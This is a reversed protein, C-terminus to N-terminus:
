GNKHQAKTFIGTLQYIDNILFQYVFTAKSRNNSSKQGKSPSRLLVDAFITALTKADLGNENSHQLLDQLFLCMYVFIQGELDSLRTEIIQM